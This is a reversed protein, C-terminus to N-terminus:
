QQQISPISYLELKYIPYKKPLEAAIHQFHKSIFVPICKYSQCTLNDCWNPCHCICGYSFLGIANPTLVYTRVYMRPTQEM